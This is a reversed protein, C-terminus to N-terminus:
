YPIEDMSHIMVTGGYDFCVRDEYMLSRLMDPQYGLVRGYLVFDHSRAVVNLPDVQVVAGARLAAAVGEKGQWRRGPYLGQKGLLFRRQTAKAITLIPM